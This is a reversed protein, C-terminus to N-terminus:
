RNMRADIIAITQMLTKPTLPKECSADMGDRLLSTVMKPDDLGSVVLVPTAPSTCHMWTIFSFGDQYPTILDTVLLDFPTGAQDNCIIKQKAGQANDSYEVFFGERKLHRMMAKTVQPEDNLVLIRKIHKSMM